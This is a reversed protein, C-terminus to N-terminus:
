PNMPAYNRSPNCYPNLHLVDERLWGPNSAANLNLNLRHEFRAGHEPKANPPFGDREFASGSFLGSPGLQTVNGTIQLSKHRRGIIGDLPWRRYSRADSSSNACRFLKGEEVHKFRFAPESELYPLQGFWVGWEPEANLVLPESDSGFRVKGASWPHGKYIVTCM